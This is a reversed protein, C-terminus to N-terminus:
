RTTNQRRNRAVLRDYEGRCDISFWVGYYDYPDYGEHREQMSDYIILDWPNDRGTYEAWLLFAQTPKARDLGLIERPMPVPDKRVSHFKGQDRYVGKPCGIFNIAM